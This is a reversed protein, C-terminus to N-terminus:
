MSLVDHLISLQIFCLRSDLNSPSIDIVESHLYFGDATYWYPLIQESVYSRTAVTFPCIAGNVFPECRLLGLPVSASVFNSLPLRQRAIQNSDLSSSDYVRTDYYRNYRSDVGIFNNPTQSSIRFISHLDSYNTGFSTSMFSSSGKLQLDSYSSDYSDGDFELSFNSVGNGFGMNSCNNISFGSSPARYSGNVFEYCNNFLDSSPLVPELFPIAMYEYKLANTDVSCVSLSLGFIIFFALLLGFCKKDGKM